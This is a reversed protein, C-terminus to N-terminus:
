LAQVPLAYGRSPLDGEQSIVGIQRGSPCGHVESIRHMGVVGGKGDEAGLWYTEVYSPDSHGPLAYGTWQGLLTPCDYLDGGRGAQAHVDVGGFPLGAGNAFGDDVHEKRWVRVVSM